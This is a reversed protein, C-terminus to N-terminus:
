RSTSPLITAIQGRRGLYLATMDRFDRRGLIDLAGHPQIRRGLAAIAPAHRPVVVWLRNVTRGVEDVQMSQLDFTPPLTPPYNPPPALQRYLPGLERFYYTHEWLTGLVPEDPQRHRLVFAAALESDLRAWPVLIRYAAQGVPFLLLVVLLLPALRARRGLWAFMAPLGAAILLLGAPAAFVMVRTAGFPYQGLLWALATMALPWLFFALVRRQGARWLVGVGVVAACALVNGIPEAAYRLVETCRMLLLGPVRWPQEWNPFFTHWCELLAENRQAHIPGLVLALFSGCLVAGFLCHLGYLHRRRARRVEPLWALFLAGLLFCAPFSVFILVPTLVLYALLRRRLRTQREEATLDAAPNGLVTALLGVAVLVDVAYPKAECTHWLLRDSPALLLLFWPLAAAPLLRRGISALAVFATCSALLPLLRLALTSSGLLTAALKELGLFLPPAAESYYLPGFYEAFSKGLVNNILAAEDHWVVPNILYHYVRLGLGLILLGPLWPLGIFIRPLRLTM